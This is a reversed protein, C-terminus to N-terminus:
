IMLEKVESESPGNPPWCIAADLCKLVYKMPIDMKRIAFFFAVDQARGYHASNPYREIIRSLEAHIIRGFASLNSINVKNILERCQTSEPNILIWGIYKNETSYMLNENEFYDKTVELIPKVSDNSM